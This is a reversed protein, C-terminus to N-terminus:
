KREWIAWEADAPHDTKVWQDSGELWGWLYVYVRRKEPLLVYRIDYRDMYGQLTEFREIIAEELDGTVGDTFWDIYAIGNVSRNVNMDMEEHRSDGQIRGGFGYYNLVSGIDTECLINGSPKSQLYEIAPEIGGYERFHPASVVCFASAAVCVAAAIATGATKIHKPCLDAAKMPDKSSLLRLLARGMALLAVPVFMGAHANVAGLLTFGAALCLEEARLLRRKALAYLLIACLVAMIAPKSILHLPQQEMVSIHKFAPMSRVIYLIGEMGYPQAFLAACTAALSLCENRDPMGRSPLPRGPIKNVVAEPFPFMYAAMACLHFPWMTMHLNMELAMLVPPLLLWAKKETAEYRDMAMVTGLVLALTVNEPRITSQYQVFGLSFLGLTAALYAWFPDSCADKEYRYAMAYLLMLPVLHLAMLGLEGPVLSALYTAAAYLWQQAVIRMDPYYSVSSFYPIGDELVERGLPIMYYSDIDMHGGVMMCTTVLGVALMSLPLLGPAGRKNQQRKM